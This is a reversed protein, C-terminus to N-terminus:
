GIPDILEERNTLTAQIYDESSVGEACVVKPSILEELRGKICRMEHLPTLYKRTVVAEEQGRLEVINVSKTDRAESFSYKMPAGAYWIPRGGVQQYRHIHGLAVYDFRSFIDAPINDIGGVDVGTESDSLQPTWGNEGTVFYHTVLVQRVTEKPEADATEANEVHVATGEEISEVHVAEKEQDTKEGDEALLGERQLIKAVAGASTTEEVVAPKVFPLCVFRVRTEGDDIEVRRLSGDYTGSMYLGQKELIKGGFSIREPSDHNGSIAIVPIGAQVLRTLFDDMLSVAEAPPVSRDYLDGALVVAQVQEALAIGCIQELIYAQDELISAEFLKKGIHLDGTHLFKM